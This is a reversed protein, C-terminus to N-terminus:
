HSKASTHVSIYCRQTQQKLNHLITVSLLCQQTNGKHKLHGVRLGATLVADVPEHPLSLLAYYLDVPKSSEVGCLTM